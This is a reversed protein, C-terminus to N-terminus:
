AIYMKLFNEIISNFHLKGANELLVIIEKFIFQMSFVLEQISNEVFFEFILKYIAEKSMQSPLFQNPVHIFYKLAFSNFIKPNSFLLIHNIEASLKINKECIESKINDFTLKLLFTL